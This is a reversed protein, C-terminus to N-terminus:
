RRPLIWCYCWIRSVHKLNHCSRRNFAYSCRSWLIRRIQWCCWNIKIPKIIFLALLCEMKHFLDFVNRLHKTITLVVDTSTALSPIEGTIKYGVVEPLVMSIPQALMVAEAEIGGVGWGLVGLGNIM